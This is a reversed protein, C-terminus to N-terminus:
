LGFAEKMRREIGPGIGTPMEKGDKLAEMISVLSPYAKEVAEAKHLGIGSICMLMSVLTSSGVRVTRHIVWEKGDNAKEILKPVIKCLQLDNSVHLMKVNFRSAISALMGLRQDVTLQINPNFHLKEFDGSIVLFCKKGSEEMRALQHQLHGSRFSTVFDECTKREIIVTGKEDEHYFDGIELQKREYPIKMQEFYNFIKMPERDDICLM